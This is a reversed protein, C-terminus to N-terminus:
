RNLDRLARDVDEEAQNLLVEYWAFVAIVAIVMMAVGHGSRGRTILIIGIIFGVIPFLVATLYGAVVLGDSTDEYRAPPAAAPAVNDTWKEGDWYRQTGAMEPDAYWGAAQPSGWATAVGPSVAAPHPAEWEAQRGATMTRGERIDALARQVEGHRTLRLRIEDDPRAPSPDPSVAIGNKELLTVIAEAAERAAPLKFAAFLESAPLRLEGGALSTREWLRDEASM